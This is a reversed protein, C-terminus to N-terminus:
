AAGEMAAGAASGAGSESAQKTAGKADHGSFTGKVTNLQKDELIFVVAVLIMVVGLAGLGIRKWFAGTFLIGLDGLFTDLPGWASTAVSAVASAANGAIQTGNNFTGSILGGISSPTGNGGEGVYTKTGYSTGTAMDAGLPVWEARIPLDADWPSFGHARWLTVAASTNVRTDTLDVNGRGTKDIQFIGIHTGNVAKPNFGSEAGAIAMFTAMDKNPVGDAQLQDIVFEAMTQQYTTLQSYKTPTM